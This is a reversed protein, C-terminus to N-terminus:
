KVHIPATDAPVDTYWAHEQYTLLVSSPTLEEPGPNVSSQLGGYLRGSDPTRWLLGSM